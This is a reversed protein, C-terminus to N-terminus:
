IFQWRKALRWLHRQMLRLCATAGHCKQCIQKILALFAEDKFCSAFYRPNLRTRQVDLLIHAWYHHKPRIQFRYIQFTNCILSALKSYSILFMNGMDYACKAEKHSLIYSAEDFTQMCQALSGAACALLESRHNGAVKCNSTFDGLWYLLQKVTHAKFKTGLVPSHVCQDLDTNAPTFMGSPSGLGHRKCWSKFLFWTRRLTTSMSDGSPLMGADHLEALCSAVFDRGWGLFVTHMYDRNCSGLNWEQIKAWPSLMRATQLYASHTILTDRWPANLSFDKYCFAPNMNQSHKTALCSDCLLTCQWYREFNHSQWRAQVNHLAM